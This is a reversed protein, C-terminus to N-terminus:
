MLRIVFAATFIMITLAGVKPRLFEDSIRVAGDEVAFYSACRELATRLVAEDVELVFLTNPFLYANCIDRMTVERPLGVPISRSVEHVFLGRGNGGAPDSQFFRGDPKGHLAADLKEEAPIEKALTGVPADLWAQVDHELPFLREFPQADHVAGTKVM